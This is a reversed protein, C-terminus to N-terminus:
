ADALHARVRRAIEELWGRYGGPTDSLYVYSGLRALLDGLQEDTRSSDALVVAIDAILQHQDERPDEDLYRELSGWLGGFDNFDEHFYAGMLHELESLEAEM